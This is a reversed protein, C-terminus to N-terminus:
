CSQVLTLAGFAELTYDGVKYRELSESHPLANLFPAEALVAELRTFRPPEHFLSGALARAASRLLFAEELWLFM